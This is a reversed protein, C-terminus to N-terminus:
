EVVILNKNTKWICPSKIIGKEVVGDQLIEFMSAVTIEFVLGRPDKVKFLKNGRYRRVTDIIEFGTLPENEWIRPACEVPIPRDFPTHIVESFTCNYNRDIGKERWEGSETQYIDKRDYAWDHQTSKRAEDTKKTPEHPHLFGFNYESVVKVRYDPKLWEFDQMIRSVVYLQKPPKTISM